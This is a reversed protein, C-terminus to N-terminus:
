RDDIDIRHLVGIVPVHHPFIESAGSFPETLLGIVRARYHDAHDQEYRGGGHDHM